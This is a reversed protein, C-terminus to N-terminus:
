RTASTPISSPVTPVPSDSAPVLRPGDVAYAIESAEVNLCRALGDRKIIGNHNEIDRLKRESIGIAFTFEKQTAGSTLLERLRKVQSGNVRYTKM